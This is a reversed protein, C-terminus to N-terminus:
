DALAAELDKKFDNLWTINKENKALEKEFEAKDGLTKKQEELKKQIKDNLEDFSKKFNEKLHKEEEKATDEMLKRASTVFNNLLSIVKDNFMETMNVYQRMEYDKVEVDYEEVKPVDVEYNEYGWDVDGGFFNVIGGFFRGVGGGLGSKERSRWEKTMVTRSRTEVHTGVEEKKEFEYESADGDFQMSALSGLIAAPQVEHSFATGLLDKVYENYEDVYKKAEAGIKKDLLKEIDIAFKNKFDELEGELEHIKKEADRRSMNGSYKNRASEIFNGRKGGSLNEFEAKLETEISLKDIKQKLEAGKNGKKIQESIIEIARQTEAIKEKNDKMKRIEDAEVGLNKVRDSFASIAETIKAPLAYKDLYESIAAEVTPIGTYILAERKDSKDAKTKQIEENIQQRVYDSLPAFDSFHYNKDELFLFIDGHLAAKEKATLPQGALDQRIIKAMKSACPFIKPNTIGHKELYIKTDQIKKEVSEGKESDFEDAKNLVFIFRDSAQRGGSKMANSIDTLLSNDDNTELQTGNLLYLVMPKYEADQIIRYTHTKHANTRSNNPGPTDTLVLNLGNSKIGAINGYIEINSVANNDNLENMSELTLPDKKEIFNNEKDYSEGWFHAESERDHIRAITATTAENRAPLLEQGLMANILTSKGSSMTAVVAIEFENDDAKKFHEEIKKDERLEEFPCDESRMRNYLARLKEMKEKGNANSTQRKGSVRKLEVKFDKSSANFEAIKDELTDCDREIGSFCICVDDNVEDTIYKLFETCWESLEAKGNRADFFDCSSGDDYKAEKQYADYSM